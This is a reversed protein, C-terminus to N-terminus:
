RKGNPGLKLLGVEKKVHCTGQYDKKRKTIDAKEEEAKRKL